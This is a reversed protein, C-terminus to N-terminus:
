IVMTRKFKDVVDQSKSKVDIMKRTEEKGYKEIIEHCFGQVFSIAVDEINDGLVIINRKSFDVYEKVQNEYISRGLKNGALNTILKDFKLEIYNDEM